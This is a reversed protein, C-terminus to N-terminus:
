YTAAERRTILDYILGAAGGAIAGYMPGRGDKTVAAGIAAGSAAGASILVMTNRPSRPKDIHPGPAAAQPSNVAEVQKVTGQVCAVGNALANMTEIFRRVQFTQPPPPPPPPANDEAQPPPPPPQADATQASAISLTAFALLATSLITARVKM